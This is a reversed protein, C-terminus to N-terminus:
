TIKMRTIPPVITGAEDKSPKLSVQLGLILSLVLIEFKMKRQSNESHNKKYLFLPNYLAKKYTSWM